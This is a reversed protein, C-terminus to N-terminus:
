YQMENLHLSIDQYNLIHSIWKKLSLSLNIDTDYLRHQFLHSVQHFELHMTLVLIDQLVEPIHVQQIRFAM